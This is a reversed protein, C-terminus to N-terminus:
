PLGIGGDIPDRFRVFAPLATPHEFDSGPPDFGGEGGTRFFLKVGPKHLCQLLRRARHIRRPNCSVPGSDTSLLAAIYAKSDYSISELVGVVDPSEDLPDCTVADRYAGCRPCNHGFVSLAGVPDALDMPSLSRVENEASTGLPPYHRERCLLVPDGWPAAPRAARGEGGPVPPASSM